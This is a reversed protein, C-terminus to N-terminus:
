SARVKVKKGTTKSKSADLGAKVYVRLAARFEEFNGDCWAANLRDAVDQRCLAETAARERRTAEPGM